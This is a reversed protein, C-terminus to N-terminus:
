LSELYAVLDEVEGDSLQSTKGHMDGGGCEPDFRDHLTEACGTHMFPAHYAVNVLSPVQFVGGTGVDVSRQDSLKDGNHCGACGVEESEFLAKGRLAAPDDAARMAPQPSLTEIWDAMAEVREESQPEGGMRRVFVESVLHSFDSMGGDWHLPETGAIGMNFLQTRRPGLQVFDWTRGDDMGGPHCSACAIGGGADTHFLDHGTDVVSAGGLEISANPDCTGLFCGDFDDYVEVRAPDRLQVVLAGDDRFDVATAQGTALLGGDELLGPILCMDTAAAGHTSVVVVGLADASEPAMLPVAAVAPRGAVAIAMWEGDNSVAADVPLVLGAVPPLSRVEGAAGFFSVGGMVIGDCGLGGGGYSSDDGPQPPPLLMQAEGATGGTGAAAEAGHVESEAEEINGLDIAEVRARQHLMALSGDPGPLTRWAVAPEMTQPEATTPLPGFFPGQLTDPVTRSLVRGDQPDLELVEARKFTSVHLRGDRVVVDRLDREVQFEHAPEAGSAPLGLVRGDACAVWVEDADGDYAMGRPLGCVERRGLLEAAALDIVAVEGAGTLAVHVRGAADEVLRGPLDDPQLAVTRVDSLDADVISVRDRDRDAVVLSGDRAVLLSGGDIPPPPESARIVEDGLVVSDAITSFGFPSSPETAPPTMAVRGGAGGGGPFVTGTTGAPVPVGFDVQTAGGQERAPDDFANCGLALVMALALWGFRDNGM